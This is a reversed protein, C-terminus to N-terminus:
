LMPTVSLLAQKSDDSEADSDSLAEELDTMMETTATDKYKMGFVGMMTTGDNRTKGVHVGWM